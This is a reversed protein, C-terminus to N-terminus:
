WHYGVGVSWRSGGRWGGNGYNFRFNSYPYSRYYGPYYNYNGYPYANPYYYYDNMREEHRWERRQQKKAAKYERWDYAKYTHQLTVGEWRTLSDIMRSAKEQSEMYRPNQDFVTTPQSSGNQQGYAITSFTLFVIGFFVHRM